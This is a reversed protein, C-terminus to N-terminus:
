VLLILEICHIQLMSASALMQKMTKIYVKFNYGWPYPDIKIMWQFFSQDQKKNYIVPDVISTGHRVISPM